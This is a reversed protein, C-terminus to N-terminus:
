KSAVARYIDLYRQAAGQPSFHEEVHQRCRQPDIEGLRRLAAIMEKEDACLFGTEGHVILEPAAGKPFALVPTGCAMAETMVLGFPEEWQSTFLVAEARALYDNREEPTIEGLLTIDAGLLPQVVREFYDREAPTIRLAMVLRKGVARAVRIAGDPNKEWDCRGLFLLFDEKQARFPMTSVDIPNHVVGAVNLRQDPGFLQQVKAQYLEEQRASIAVFSDGQCSMPLYKCVLEAVAPGHMTRVVPIPYAHGHPFETHDHIVDAGAERAAIFARSSTEAWAELREERSLNLTLHREVTPMLRASTVSDAPAMLIVEHGMAVLSETVDAVVREIGGYGPPPVPFWPPSIMAIKM